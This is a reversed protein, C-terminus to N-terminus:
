YFLVKDTDNKGLEKTIYTVWGSDVADLRYRYKDRKDHKQQKYTDNYIVFEGSLEIAKAVSQKFEIVGMYDCCELALHAHLDKLEREGELVYIGHVKKDYRKYAQKYCIRSLLQMFRQVAADLEQRNLHRYVAGKATHKHLLKKPMLTLGFQLQMAGGTALWDCLVQKKTTNYAGKRHMLERIEDLRMALGM